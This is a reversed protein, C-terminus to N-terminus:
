NNTIYYQSNAHPKGGMYLNYKKSYYAGGKSLDAEFDSVLLEFNRVYFDRVDLYCSDSNNNEAITNVIRIISMKDDLTLINGTRIKQCKDIVLLNFEIATIQIGISDQNNIMKARTTACSDLSITTLIILTIARIM